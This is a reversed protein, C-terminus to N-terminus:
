NSAIAMSPTSATKVLVISSVYLVAGMLVTVWIIAKCAEVLGVALLYLRRLFKLLRLIRLIRMLRVMRFITAFGGSGKTHVVYSSVADFAGIGVIFLDFQNWTFDPHRPDFFRCREVCMKFLVELAFIVLFGNELDNWHDWRSYDTELGIVVGNAVIILAMINQFTTSAIVRRGWSMEEVEEGEEDVDVDPDHTLVARYEIEDKMTNFRTVVSPRKKSLREGDGETCSADMRPTVRGSFMRPTARGSLM